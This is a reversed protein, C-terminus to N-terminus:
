ARQLGGNDADLLEIGQEVRLREIERELGDRLLVNFAEKQSIRLTYAYDRLLKLTHTDIAFNMATCDNFGSRNPRGRKKKQQENM